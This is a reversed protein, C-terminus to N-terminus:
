SVVAPPYEWLAGTIQSTLRTGAVSAWDKSIITVHKGDDLLAWAASLGTIGGGVVLIHPSNKAPKWLPVPSPSINKWMRLPVSADPSFTHM